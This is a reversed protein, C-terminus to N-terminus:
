WLLGTFELIILLLKLLVIAERLCTPVVIQFPKRFGLCSTKFSVQRFSHFSTFYMRGKKLYDLKFGTICVYM